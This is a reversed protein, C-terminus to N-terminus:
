QTIESGSAVDYSLYCFGPGSKAKQSVKPMLLMIFHWAWLLSYGKDAIVLEKKPDVSFGASDIFHTMRYVSWSEPIPATGSFTMMDGM